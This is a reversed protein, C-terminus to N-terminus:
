KYDKRNTYVGLEKERELSEKGVFEVGSGGYNTFYYTCMYDQPVM